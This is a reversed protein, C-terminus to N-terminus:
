LYRSLFPKKSLYKQPIRVNAPSCAFSSGVGCRAATVFSPGPVRDPTAILMHRRAFEGGRNGEDNAIDRAGHTSEILGGDLFPSRSARRRLPLCRDLGQYCVDFALKLSRAQEFRGRGHAQFRFISASPRRLGSASLMRFVAASRIM